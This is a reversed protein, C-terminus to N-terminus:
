TFGCYDKLQQLAPELDPGEFHQLVETNESLFKHAAAREFHSSGCLMGFAVEFDDLPYLMCPGRHVTGPGATMLLRALGLHGRLVYLRAGGQITCGGSRAAASIEAAVQSPLALWTNLLLGIAKVSNERHVRHIHLTMSPDPAESGPRHLASWLSDALQDAAAASSSPSLPATFFWHRATCKFSALTDVDTRLTANERELEDCRRESAHLRAMVMAVWAAEPAEM